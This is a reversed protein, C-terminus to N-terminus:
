PEDLELLAFELARATTSLLGMTRSPARRRDTPSGPNFIQFGDAAIEHLPMHSHGFIVAGADPFFRRLRELRGSRRGADHIVAVRGGDLELELQEPLRAKLEPDDANGRVALVQGYGRLQDLAAIGTLDGAHITLEAERLHEVCHSPLARRGRPLHTDAIVAVLM